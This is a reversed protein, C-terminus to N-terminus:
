ASTAILYAIAAAILLQVVNRNRATQDARDRVVRLAAQALILGAFVLRPVQGGTATYILLGAMVALLALITASYANPTV